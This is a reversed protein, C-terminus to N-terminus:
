WTSSSKHERASTSHQASVSELRISRWSSQMASSSKHKDRASYQRSIATSPAQMWRTGFCLLLYLIHAFSDIQTLMPTHKKQCLIKNQIKIRTKHLINRFWPYIIWEVFSLLEYEEHIEIQFQRPKMVSLRRTSMTGCKLPFNLYESTRLGSTCPARMTRVGTQRKSEFSM